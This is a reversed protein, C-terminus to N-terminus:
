VRRAYGHKDESSEVPAGPIRCDFCAARSGQRTRVRLGPRSLSRRRPQSIRAGLWCANARRALVRPIAHVGTKGEDVHRDALWEIEVPPKAAIEWRFRQKGRVPSSIKLCEPSSDQFVSPVSSKWPRNACSLLESPGRTNGLICNRRFNLGLRPSGM